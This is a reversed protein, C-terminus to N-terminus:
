KILAAIQKSVIGRDITEKNGLFSVAWAGVLNGYLAIVEAPANLSALPATISLLADGAGVRDRVFPAFAPAHNITDASDYVDVGDGGLTVLIKQANLRKRLLPVFEHLDTNKRKAEHRIETGNLTVFDARTYKDISNLGKNGANSQVNVALYQKMGTLLKITESTIFGHGYDAVIVLDANRISENLKSRIEIETHDDLPSDDMEYLELVRVGTRHDIYREKRITPKNGLDITKVVVGRKRLQEVEPATEDSKNIATIVTTAMGLGACHGAIALVGGAHSESQGKSFCLVPDKSSKGLADCHSYVDIITEGVIVVKLRSIRDLWEIANTISNRDKFDNLWSNIEPSHV